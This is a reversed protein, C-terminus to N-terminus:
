AWAGARSFEAGGRGDIGLPLAYWPSGGPYTGGGRPRKKEEGKDQGAIVQRSGPAQSASFSRRAEANRGGLHIRRKRNKTERPHFLYQQIPPLDNASDKLCAVEIRYPKISIVISSCYFFSYVPETIQKNEQKQTDLFRDSIMFFRDSIMFFRDSIMFFRDSKMSNEVLALIGAPGNM